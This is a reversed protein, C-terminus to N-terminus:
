SCLPTALPALPLQFNARLASPLTRGATRSVASFSPISLSHWFQLPIIGGGGPALARFYVSFVFIKTEYSLENTLSFSLETRECYKMIWDIIAGGGLCSIATRSISIQAFLRLHARMQPLLPPPPPLEAGEAVARGGEARRPPLARRNRDKGGRSGSL